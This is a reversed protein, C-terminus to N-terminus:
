LRELVDESLTKITRLTKYVRTKNTEINGKRQALDIEESDLQAHGLTEIPGITDTVM